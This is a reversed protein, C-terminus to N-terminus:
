LLYLVPFLFIWVLDVFHWFLGTVEVRNALWEPNEKYLNAGFTALYTLVLMGGIIHLAHLGTMTFYIAFFTSYKPIFNGWRVIDETDIKIPTGHDSSGGGGHPKVTVEKPADGGHGHGGKKADPIIELFKQETIKKRDVTGHLHGTIEYAEITTYEKTGANAEHLAGEYKAFAAKKIFVGYHVFKDNYEKSKVGLFIAACGITLAMYFQYTGPTLFSGFRRRKVAAWAMVMTISSCILVATNFLGLPIDLIEQYPWHEAGLRLFIYSSFLGGFLMVESALFLWIGLKGNYLGSDPRPKVIYPILEHQEHDHGADHAHDHSSPSHAM